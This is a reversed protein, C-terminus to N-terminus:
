STTTLHASVVIQDRYSRASEDFSGGCTILRLEPGTTDGYVEATATSTQDEFDVKPYSTVRDVTFQATTGDARDILVLNGPRLEDLRDFIGPVGRRGDQEGDVHGYLVAPGVEGPHPSWTAWSAQMPQHVSPVQPSGDANMGTEILTSRAAIQPIRMSTPAAVGVTTPATPAAPQDTPATCGSVLALLAVIGLLLKM